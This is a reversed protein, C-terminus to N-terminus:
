AHHGKAKEESVQLRGYKRLLREGTANGGCRPFSGLEGEKTEKRDDTPSNGLHIGTELMRAM